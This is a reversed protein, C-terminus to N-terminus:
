NSVKPVLILVVESGSIVIKKEGLQGTVRQMLGGLGEEGVKRRCYRTCCERLVLM